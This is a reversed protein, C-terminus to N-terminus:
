QFFHPVDLTRSNYVVSCNKNRLSHMKLVYLKNETLLYNTFWELEIGNIGNEQLKHLLLGHGITDFAKTLDIFVAGVM